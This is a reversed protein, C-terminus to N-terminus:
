ERAGLSKLLPILDTSRNGCQRAWWLATNVDDKGGNLRYNNDRDRANVDAGNKVLYRITETTAGRNYSASIIAEDLPTCNGSGPRFNIDDGNELLLNVIDMHGAVVAAGMPTERPRYKFFASGTMGIIYKAIQVEGRSCAEILANGGIEKYKIDIGNEIMLRVKSIDGKKITDLLRTQQESVAKKARDELWLADPDKDFGVIGLAEEAFTLSKGVDGSSFADASNEILQKFADERNTAPRTKKQLPSMPVSPMEAEGQPTFKVTSFLQNYEGPIQTGNSKDYVERRVQILIDSFSKGPSAILRVLTPTFLGDQAVSGAEASYVIISNKPKKGVVALGRDASRRSGAPLPNNRCADLIIINTDSESSDLTTMLEDVDVARTSVKREDQIIADTPILYNRGDVQVAHGGYHFFAIGGKGKFSLGFSDFAELIQERSGNKLITVQFGLKSLVEALSQAEPIPSALSSFNAYDGNAVLLAIRSDGFSPAMALVTLTVVLSIRRM